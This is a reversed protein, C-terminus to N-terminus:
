SSQAAPPTDHWELLATEHNVLCDHLQLRLSFKRKNELLAIHPVPSLALILSPCPAHPELYPHTRHFAGHGRPDVLFTSLLELATAEQMKQPVCQGAMGPLTCSTTLDPSCVIPHDTESHRGQWSFDNTLNGFTNCVLFGVAYVDAPMAHFRNNTGTVVTLTLHRRLRAAFRMSDYIKLVLRECGHTQHYFDQMVEHVVAPIRTTYITYIKDHLIEVMLLLVKEYLKINPWQCHAWHFCGRRGPTSHRKRPRHRLGQRLELRHQKFSGSSVLFMIKQSGYVSKQPLDCFAIFKTTSGALSQTKSSGFLCPEWAQWKQGGGLQLARTTPDASSGHLRWVAGVSM